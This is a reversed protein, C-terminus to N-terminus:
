RTPPAMFEPGVPDDICRALIDDIAAMADKDLSWGEIEGVPDLQEPRRAGWLATTVGPQDVLWRLALALVNKQYRERAFADLEAVANLYQRYREGQFKPDNKRLDDGTFQTDEQMKGTLLGRCLGGYTITAIGNERCYPLIEQEIEREFLNYPPQLSHLAVTKQLEDMQSPTFNSVGIARIKGAQYLNELARATEEMPTRSDPWHVQYIDIRDTQLRKLSDEVEREIRSATADRWVKDQDDNWNLAVKTALAVQDRRGDALAKGVIEESRGFGYVPATDILGIGKDIARHITDISQAEDTGGWMWGGIAWTGLGVPTVQINTNGFTRTEM